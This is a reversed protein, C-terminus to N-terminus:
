DEHFPEFKTRAKEKAKQFQFTVLFRFNSRYRNSVSFQISVPQFGFIPDIGTPFRFNSQYWNSVSFQISVPQFGFIPDIGTPFRFNSRYRNSVSFKSRYRNSVSFQISLLQFGTVYIDAQCSIVIHGAWGVRHLLGSSTNDPPNKSTKV